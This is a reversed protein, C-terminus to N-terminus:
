CTQLKHIPILRVSNIEKRIIHERIFHDRIDIHKTRLHFVPHEALLICSYNDEHIPIPLKLPVCMERFLRIIWLAEKVAESLALYEAEAASIAVISQKKSKWSMPSGGYKVIYGTISKRDGKDSAWDSDCYIDLSSDGNYHHGIDQTGKLYRLVHKARKM